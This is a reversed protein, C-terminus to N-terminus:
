VARVVQTSEYTGEKGRKKCGPDVPRHGLHRWLFVFRRRSHGAAIGAYQAPWYNQTIVREVTKGWLVGCHGGTIHPGHPTLTTRM